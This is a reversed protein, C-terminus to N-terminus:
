TFICILITIIMGKGNHVLRMSVCLQSCNTADTTEDAMIAVYKAAKVRKKLERELITFTSFILDNQIDSSLGTFVNSQSMNSCGSYKTLLDMTEVFNGKNLSDVSEDHGRFAIGQKSLLMVVDIHHRLFERNKHVEENYQDRQLAIGRDLTTAINVVGLLSFSSAAAVHDMTLEHRKQLNALNGVDTVGVRTWVNSSGPRLIMCPFCFFAKITDCGCMWPHKAYQDKFVCQRKGDFRFTPTPRGEKKIALKQEYSLKGSNELLHSVSVMRWEACHSVFIICTFASGTKLTSNNDRARGLLFDCACMSDNPLMKICACTLIRRCM